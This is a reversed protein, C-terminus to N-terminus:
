KRSCLVGCPLSTDNNNKDIKFQAEQVMIMSARREQRVKELISVPLDHIFFLDKNINKLNWVIKTNVAKNPSSKYYVSM